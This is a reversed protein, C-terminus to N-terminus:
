TFRAQLASEHVLDGLIPKSQDHNGGKLNTAGSTATDHNRWKIAGRRLRFKLPTCHRHLHCSLDCLVKSAIKLM